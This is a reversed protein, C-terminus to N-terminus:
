RRMSGKLRTIAKRMFQEENERPNFLFDQGPRETPTTPSSMIEEVRAAFTRSGSTDEGSSARGRLAGITERARLPRVNETDKWWREKDPRDIRPSTLLSVTSTRPNTSTWATLVQEQEQEKEESEVLTHSAANSGLSESSLRRQLIDDSTTRAHRSSMRPPPAPGHEVVTHTRTQPRSSKTGSVEYSTSPRWMNPRTPQDPRYLSRLGSPQDTQTQTFRTPRRTDAHSMAILQDVGPGQHYRQEKPREEITRPIAQAYQKPIRPVEPIPGTSVLNAVKLSADSMRQALSRSSRTREKTLEIFQKSRVSTGSRISQADRDIDRRPTAPQSYYDSDDYSTTPRQEDISHVRHPYGSGNVQKSEIMAVRQKLDDIEIKLQMKEGELNTIMEVAENLAEETEEMNTIAEQNVNNLNVVENKLGENAERAAIMGLRLRDLQDSMEDINDIDDQVAALKEALKKNEAQLEYNEEKLPKLRDVEEKAKVWKEHLKHNSNNLLEVRLSQKFLQDRLKEVETSLEQNTKGRPPTDKEHPRRKRIPSEPTMLEEPLDFEDFADPSAAPTHLASSTPATARRLLTDIPKPTDQVPTNQARRAELASRLYESKPISM